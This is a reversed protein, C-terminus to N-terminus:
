LGFSIHALYYLLLCVTNSKPQKAETPTMELSETSTASATIALSTSNTLSQGFNPAQAIVSTFTLLDCANLTDQALDSIADHFYRYVMAPATCVSSLNTLMASVTNLNGPSLSSSSTTSGITTAPLDASSSSSVALSTGNFSSPVASSPSFSSPVASSIMADVTAHVMSTHTSIGLERQQRSAHVPVAMCAALHTNDIIFRTNASM